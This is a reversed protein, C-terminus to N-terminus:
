GFFDKMQDLFKNHYSYCTNEESEFANQLYIFGSFSIFFGVLNECKSDGQKEPWAFYIFLYILICYASLNSLPEYLVICILSM